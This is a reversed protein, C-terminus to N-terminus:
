LFSPAKVANNFVIYVNPWYALSLVVNSISFNSSAVSAIRVPAIGNIESNTLSLSNSLFKCFKIDTLSM